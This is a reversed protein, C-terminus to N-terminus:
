IEEEITLTARFVGYPSTSLGIEEPRWNTRALYNKVDDESYFLRHGCVKEATPLRGDKRRTAVVYLEYPCPPHERKDVMIRGVTNGNIDLLKDASEPANCLCSPRLCQKQVKLPVTALVYRLAEAIDDEFAASDCDIEITVRM